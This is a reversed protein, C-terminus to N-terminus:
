GLVLDLVLGPERRVPFAVDGLVVPRAPAPRLVEKAHIAVLHAAPVDVRALVVVVAVLGLLLQHHMALRGRTVRHLQVHDVPRV